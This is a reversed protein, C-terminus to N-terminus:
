IRTDTIADLEEQNAAATIKSILGLEGTQTNTYVYALREQIDEALKKIDNVDYTSVARGNTTVIMYPTTESIALPHTEFYEAATYHESAMQLSTEAYTGVSWTEVGSEILTSSKDSVEKIKAAKNSFLTGVTANDVAAEISEKTGLETNVKVNGNITIQADYFGATLVSQYLAEFSSINKNEFTHIM